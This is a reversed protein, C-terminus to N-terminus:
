YRIAIKANKPLARYIAIIDNEPLKIRITPNIDAKDPSFINKGTEKIEKYFIDFNFKIRAWKNKASYTSDQEFILDIGYDLNLLLFAPPEIRQGPVVASIAAEATDKPADRIIIPEKEITSYQHVINLPSSFLKIYYTNPLQKLIIDLDSNIFKATHLRVGNLYLYVSSDPLSIALQISDDESQQILAELFAKERVIDSLDSNNLITHGDKIFLSDSEVLKYYENVKIVPLLASITLLLFIILIFVSFIKKKISLKRINQFVVSLWKMKM